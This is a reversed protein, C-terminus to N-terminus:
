PSSLARALLTRRNRVDTKTFVSKLHDQVTFESLFLRGAVTRTDDGDALCELVRTEQTSLGHSRSFITLRARPAMREITVAIDGSGSSGLRAARFELWSGAGLAVGAVPPHPDVGAQNALLQAAVNYAGAPVPQRDAETPLLERLYRASDDTQQRVVLEPSLLLVAPGTETPPTLAPVDFMRAQCRRLGAAVPALLVQLLALERGDFTGPSTRWLDLFAWSGFRDAILISAVDSVGYSTLFARWVGGGGAGLAVPVGPELGTWRHPAEVYKLRILRPLESLCPAEALPATGVTTEPDVLLWAFADFPVVPRIADLVRRRLARSDILDRCAAEVRIRAAEVRANAAEPM